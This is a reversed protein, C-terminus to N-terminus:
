DHLAGRDRAYQMFHKIKEKKANIASRDLTLPLVGASVLMEFVAIVDQMEEHIRTRETPANLITPDTDDLGFRNAKDCRKAVEVCEENLCTLLYETVNM